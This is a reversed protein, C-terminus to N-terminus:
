EITPLNARIDSPVADRWVFNNKQYYNNYRSAISNAMTQATNRQQKGFATDDDKYQKYILVQAEYSAIEARCTNEVMKLTNYNTADDVKQVQYVTKNRWRTTEMAIERIGWGIGPLLLLIVLLTLLGRKSM